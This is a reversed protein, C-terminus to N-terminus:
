RHDSRQDELLTNSGGRSGQLHQQCGPLREREGQQLLHAQSDVQFAEWPAHLTPPLSPLTGLSSSM